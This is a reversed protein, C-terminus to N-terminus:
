EPSPTASSQPRKIAQQHAEHQQCILVRELERVAKEAARDALPKHYMICKTITDSIHPKLTLALVEPKPGDQRNKNYSDSQQVWKRFFSEESDLCKDEQIVYDDEVDLVGDTPPKRFWGLWGSNYPKVQKWEVQLDPEPEVTESDLEVPTGEFCRKM